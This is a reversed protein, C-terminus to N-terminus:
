GFTQGSSGSRITGEVALLRHLPEDTEWCATALVQSPNLRLVLGGETILPAKVNCTRNKQLAPQTCPLSKRYNSTQVKQQSLCTCCTICTQKGVPLQVQPMSFVMSSHLVTAVSANATIIEMLCLGPPNQTHTETHTERQWNDQPVVTCMLKYM